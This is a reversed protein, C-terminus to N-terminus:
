VDIARVAPDRQWRLALTQSGVGFALCGVSLVVRVVWVVGRQAASLKKTASPIEGREFVGDRVTWRIYGITGGPPYVTALHQRVEAEVTARFEALTRDGIDRVAEAQTAMDSPFDRAEKFLTAGWIALVICTTGAALAGSHYPRGPAAIRHAVAGVFLGILVFFFVGIFFPLAAAYSLLWALPLGIVISTAVALWWRASGDSHVAPGAPGTVGTVPQGPACRAKDDAGTRSANEGVEGPQARQVGPSDITHGGGDVAGTDIAQGGASAL